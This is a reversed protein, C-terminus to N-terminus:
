NILCSAFACIITLVGRVRAFPTLKGTRSPTYFDVRVIVSQTPSKYYFITYTSYLNTPWKLNSKYFLRGKPDLSISQNCTLCAYSTPAGKGFDVHGMFQVMIEPAQIRLAIYVDTARFHAYANCSNPYVKAAEYLQHPLSSESM